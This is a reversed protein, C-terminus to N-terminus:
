RSRVPSSPPAHVQLHFTQGATTAVFAFVSADPQTITIPQGNSTITVRDVDSVRVRVPGAVDATITAARLRGASWTIDVEYGGRARLGQVRGTPWAHPLAPLLHIEGDHSQLLMEAVGATAGLNGDIQFIGPPHLDLLTRTTNDRLLALLSDHAQDGDEFRAFFNVIWARSWGTQGGKHSLRYDVSKRAAAALAPTGRLTIEHGPYMAFLHSIHRHGPEVEDYDDIWEQLRGTRVSIQLPPLRQLTATLRQQFATDLHLADAAAITNTFLDHIIELDMTAAYTFRSKSGDPLVFTNEPSFSPNTVLRHRPDHPDEVLYDLLFEAAGKMVPYAQQALFARDRTYAYHEWFHQALWAAGMPWIGQVGDAPTTFGWVDSLHHVVWGHAGYHVRATREGSAVLHDRVYDFLPQHLESLNTVEAPWYNMQLNINTHYDANWPPTLSDNWLGQLNAPLNGPRSSSILLYRGMQFYLAVFDPDDKGARVAALREDTPLAAPAAASTGRQPATGSTVTEGAVAPADSTLHLSVRDFYHRYDQDHAARLTDFSKAVASQIAARCAADPEHHSFDTAATVLLTLSDAGAITLGNDIARVTGGTPVALVHAAFRLGKNEGTVTERRDIQGRMVLRDDGDTSTSADQSRVLHVRATIRGPQSATLRMVIVQDPASAFLERTFTVGDVTYRVRTVAHALDLERRYGQVDSPVVDMRLLLDGLTQYPKIRQPRGMLGEALKTAEANRGAFLLRRVETLNKLADPNTTDRPFGDWLTNENLQIREDDPKGFVMAGLRGNGIPLADLWASAPSTYWLTLPSSADAAPAPTAAQQLRHPQQGSSDPQRVPTRASTPTPQRGPARGDVREVRRADAASPVGAPVAVASVSASGGVAVAAVVVAAAGIFVALAARRHYPM